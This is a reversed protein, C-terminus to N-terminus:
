NYQKKIDSESQQTQKKPKENETFFQSIYNKLLIPKLMQVVGSM